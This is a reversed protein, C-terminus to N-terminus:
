KRLDLEQIIKKYRDVNKEHLYELLRKRKGVMRMLGIRSHQDKVNDALHKSLEEIRATLIAIQVEPTGSDKETKGYKKIFESTQEKSIPM